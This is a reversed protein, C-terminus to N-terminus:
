KSWTELTVNGAPLIVTPYVGYQIQYLERYLKPGFTSKTVVFACVCIACIALYEVLRRKRQKEDQFERVIGKVLYIAIVAAVAYLVAKIINEIM